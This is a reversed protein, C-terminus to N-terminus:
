ANLCAEVFEGAKNLTLKFSLTEKVVIKSLYSYDKLLGPDTLLSILANAIDKPDLERILSGDVLKVLDRSGVNKTVVPVAGSAMAEVVSIPFADFLSPQIYISCSRFLKLMEIRPLIGIIKIRDEVGFIRARNVILQGMPELETGGALIFSAKINEKRLEYAIEPILHVGKIPILVGSFCIWPKKDKHILEVGLITELEPPTPYLVMTKNNILEKVMSSVAIVFDPFNYLKNISPSLISPSYAVSAWCKYFGRWLTGFITPKVGETVLIDGRDLLSGNLNYISVVNVDQGLAKLARLWVLHGIHPAKLSLYTIKVM